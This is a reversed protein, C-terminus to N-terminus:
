QKFRNKPKFRTKDAKKVTKEMNKAFFSMNYGIINM